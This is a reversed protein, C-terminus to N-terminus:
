SAKVFEILQSKLYRPDGNETLHHPELGKAKMKDVQKVDSYKLFAAAETKTMVEDGKETMHIVKAAIVAAFRDLDENSIGPITPNIHRDTLSM